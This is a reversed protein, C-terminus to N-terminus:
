LYSITALKIRQKNYYHILSISELVEADNYAYTADPINIIKLEIVALGENNKMNTKIPIDM